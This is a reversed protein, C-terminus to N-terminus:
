TVALGALDGLSPTARVCYFGGTILHSTAIANCCCRVRLFRQVIMLMSGHLLFARHVFFLKTSALNEITM